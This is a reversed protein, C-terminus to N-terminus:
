KDGVMAANLMVEENDAFKVSCVTLGAIPAPPHV